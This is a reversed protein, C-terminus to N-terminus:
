VVKEREDDSWGVTIAFVINHREMGARWLRAAALLMRMGCIRRLQASSAKRRISYVLARVQEEPVLQKELGKDYDVEITAGVFRDLTAADLQNRGVYQADAGTGFTNAAALIITSPHRIVKRKGPRPIMMYGNALAGNIVLAVNSDIGDFEDLLIVGGNEYAEVFETAEYVSPGGSLNPISRGVIASETIGGSVCIVSAGNFGLMTALNEAITTKGSGAPGVLLINNFGADIRAKITALAPHQNSPVVDEEKSKNPNEGLKFPVGRYNSSDVDKKVLNYPNCNPFDPCGPIISGDRKQVFLMMKGCRRCNRGTPQGVERPTYGFM